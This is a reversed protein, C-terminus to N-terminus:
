LTVSLLVGLREADAECVTVVPKVGDGVGECVGDGQGVGECVAVDVRVGDCPAVGDEEALREM